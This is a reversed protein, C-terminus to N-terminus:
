LRNGLLIEKLLSFEPLHSFIVQDQFMYHSEFTIHPGQTINFSLSITKEKDETNAPLGGKLTKHPLIFIIRTHITHLIPVFREVILLKIASTSSSEFLFLLERFHVKSSMTDPRVLEVFDVM